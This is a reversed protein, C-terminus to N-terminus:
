KNAGGLVIKPGIVRLICTLLILLEFANIRYRMNGIKYLNLKFTKSKLSFFKIRM